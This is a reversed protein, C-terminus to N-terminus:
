HGLLSIGCVRMAWNNSSWRSWDIGNGILLGSPNLKNIHPNLADQADRAAERQYQTLTKDSRPSIDTPASCADASLIDALWARIASPQCTTDRENDDGSILGPRPLASGRKDAPLPNLRAYPKTAVASVKAQRCPARTMSRTKVGPTTNGKSSQQLPPLSAHGDDSLPHRHMEWVAEDGVLFDLPPQGRWCRVIRGVSRMLARAKAEPMVLASCKMLQRHALFAVFFPHARSRLRPLTRYPTRYAKITGGRDAYLTTRHKLYFLPVLDYEYFQAPFEKLFHKRSHLDSTKNYEAMRHMADLTVKTPMLTWELNKLASIMDERLEIHNLPSHLNLEGKEMGWYYEFHEFQRRYCGEDLDILRHNVLVNTRVDKHISLAGSPITSTATM